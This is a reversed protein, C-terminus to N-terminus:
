SPQAPHLSWSLSNALTKGGAAYSGTNKQIAHEILILCSLIAPTAFALHLHWHTELLMKELVMIYKSYWICAYQM